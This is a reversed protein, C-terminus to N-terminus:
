EDDDASGLELSVTRTRGDRRVTLELVDGPRRGRVKVILEEASHVGAGDVATVVDGPELGAKEAPGGPVVPEGDRRSGSRAVRAGDGGYAMDFRVGLVPRVARGDNILEEAVRRGQNVPIAFGLGVSGGEGGAPLEPGSGASRIASNIGVVRGRSDLLPGGSNGPNMAADTQLADVYSTGGGDPGGAATVPRHTASVIGYTVTGALGFPAGVAVVPDGVAVSESDGLPLPELDRVGSVRVVALDYGRATGVVEGEVSRGDHFAVELPAGRAASEVVHSNTLIHGRDDLVFGSGVRTGPGEGDGDGDHLTVVGPLAAKAIGAVTGPATDAGTGPGAQPLEVDGVLGERELYAGLLGGAIGVALSLAVTAAVLRSGHRGGSEAPDPALASTAWPDYRPRRPGSPRPEQPLPAPLAPVAGPAPAGAAPEAAAKAVPTVAAPTTAPSPLPVGWAPTVAPRRVPPAPAWPGPGGYPPTSYPDAGHLPAARSPPFRGSGGSAAGATRASIPAPGTGGSAPRAPRGDPSSVPGEASRSASTGSADPLPLQGAPSERPRGPAKPWSEASKEDM